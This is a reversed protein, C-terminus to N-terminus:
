PLVETWYDQDYMDTFKYLALYDNGVFTNSIEIGSPDDVVMQEGIFYSDEYEGNYTYFDCIFDIKDGKQLEILGRSETENDTGKYDPRAGAIYGRSHENDFILELKVREGNLLAPVYGTIRYRDGDDFTDTHYYAVPQGEISLWTGDVDAILNGNEDIEFVNDLGLDIYGDGDDYYMALDVKNILEWQENDIPIYYKGNEEKWTLVSADFYNESIYQATQEDSLQRGSSLSSTGFASMLSLMDNMGSSSLLSSLSGYSSSSSDGSLMGLPNQVQSGMISQGSAELSAFERICDSYEDDIGIGEFTNIAQNVKSSKSNYPFYVSIGYANTMSSSTRNYKVASLVTKVLEDSEKTDLGRAFDVLDVQDIKSSVAFERAGTRASSVTQYGGDSITKQTSSCFNRFDDPLTRSLEALDVVSLTTKQGPCKEDCTDVFDDIIIKSLNLTDISPDKSLANLWNTYYWGIGPETEESGILYDSFEAAMLDTEVTGMLCADFGIFDYKIGASSLASRIEALDMSGSAPNKEDYGYGSVSGGGHDWFILMNRNAPYNKHAYNIFSTLTKPDTMPASGMDKELCEIKGGGVVRYIQNVSSSVISNKWKKCGGTYVIVNVNDSLVADTMEMLDNTAMGGRSELDTGCMYVMVTVVDKGGGLINTYRERAAPDVDRNLSGINKDPGWPGQTSSVNSVFPSSGSGLIQAATGLLSGGTQSQSASQNQATQDGSYGQDSPSHRFLLFLVVIVIVATSLSMGRRGRFGGGMPAGQMHSPGGGSFHQGGSSSPRRGGAFSGSGVPGTGLGSGRRHVGSGGGTVHKERGRPGPM